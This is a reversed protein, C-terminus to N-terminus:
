FNSKWLHLKTFLGDRIQTSEIIYNSGTQSSLLVNICFIKIKWLNIYKDFM